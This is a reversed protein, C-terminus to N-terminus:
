KGRLVKSNREVYSGVHAFVDTVSWAVLVLAGRKHKWLLFDLQEQTPKHAKRVVRYQTGHYDWDGSPEIWEPAKVEIYLARGNPALTAELDPFGKLDTKTSMLAVDVSQGSQKARAMMLGRTKKGGADIAIVDVCLARLQSVIEAQVEAESLHRMLYFPKYRTRDFKHPFPYEIL